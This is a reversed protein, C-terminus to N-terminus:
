QAHHVVQQRATLQRPEEQQLQAQKAQRRLTRAQQVMVTVVAVALKQDTQNLVLHRVVVEV